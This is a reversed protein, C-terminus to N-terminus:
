KAARREVNPVALEFPEDIYHVYDRVPVFEAISRRHLITFVFVVSLTLLQAILVLLALAVTSAWGPIALDTTFRITLVIALVATTVAVGGLVTALAASTDVLKSAPLTVRDIWKAYTAGNLLILDAGQYGM